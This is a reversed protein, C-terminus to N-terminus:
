ARTLTIVVDQGLLANAGATCAPLKEPDIMLGLSQGIAYFGDGPTGSGPTLQARFEFGDAAKDLTTHTTVAVSQGGLSPLIAGLVPMAGLLQRRTM